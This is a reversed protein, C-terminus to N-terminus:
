LKWFLLNLFYIWIELDIYNLDVLENGFDFTKLIMKYKRLTRRICPDFKGFYIESYSSGYPIQIDKSKHTIYRQSKFQFKRKTLLSIRVRCSEIEADFYIVSILIYSTCVDDNRLIM